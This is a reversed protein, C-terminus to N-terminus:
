WQHSSYIKWSIEPQNPKTEDQKQYIFSNLNAGTNIEEWFTLIMLMYRGSGFAIAQEDL